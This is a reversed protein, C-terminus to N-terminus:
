FFNHHILQILKLRPPCHEKEKSFDCSLISIYCVCISRHIINLFKFLLDPVDTLNFHCVHPQSVDKIVQIFNKMIEHYIRSLIAHHLNPWRSLPNTDGLCFRPHIGVKCYYNFRAELGFQASETCPSSLAM